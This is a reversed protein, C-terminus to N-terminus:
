DKYPVLENLQNKRKGCGCGSFLKDIGLAHTVKHVTDGLGRATRNPVNYHPCNANCESEPVYHAPVGNDWRDSWCCCLQELCEVRHVCM